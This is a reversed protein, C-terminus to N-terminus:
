ATRWTSIERQAKTFAFDVLALFDLHHTKRAGPSVSSDRQCSHMCHCLTQALRLTFLWTRLQIFIPPVLSCRPPPIEPFSYKTFLLLVFYVLFLVVVVSNNNNNNNNVVVIIIMMMMM